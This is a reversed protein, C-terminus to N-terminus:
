RILSYSISYVNVEEKKEMKMVHDLFNPALSSVGGIPNIGKKNKEYFFMFRSMAFGGRCVSIIIHKDSYLAYNLKYNPLEPFIMCGANWDEGEEAFTNSLQSQKTGTSRSIEQLLLQQDEEPLEKLHDVKKLWDYQILDRIKQLKENELTKANGGVYLFAKAKHHDSAFYSIFVLSIVFFVLLVIFKQLNTKM